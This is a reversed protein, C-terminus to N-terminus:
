AIQFSPDDEGVPVGLLEHMESRIISVDLGLVRCVWLFSGVEDGESDFWGRPDYLFFQGNSETENVRKLDDLAQMLVAKWLILDHPSLEHQVENELDAKSKFRARRPRTSQMM